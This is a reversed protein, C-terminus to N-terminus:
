GNRPQKVSADVISSGYPEVPKGPLLTTSSARRQQELRLQLAHLHYRAGSRLKVQQVALKYLLTWRQSPLSSSTPADHLNTTESATSNRRWFPDGSQTSM